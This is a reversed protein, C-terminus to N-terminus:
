TASFDIATQADEDFGMDWIKTHRGIWSENGAARTVDTGLNHWM